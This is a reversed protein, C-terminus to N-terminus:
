DIEAKYIEVSFDKEPLDEYVFYVAGMEDALFTVNKRQLEKPMNLLSEEAGGNRVITHFINYFSDVSYFSDEGDALMRFGHCRVRYREEEGTEINHVYIVYQGDKEGQGSQILLHGTTVFGYGKNEWPIEIVSRDSKVVQFSLGTEREVLYTFFNKGGSIGNSTYEADQNWEVAEVTKLMGNEVTFCEFSSQGGEAEKECIGAVQNGFHVLWSSGWGAELTSTEKKLVTFKETGNKLYRLEWKEGKCDNVDACSLCIGGDDDLVASFLYEQKMDITREIEHTNMNWVLIEDTLAFAYSENWHWVYCLIRFNRIDCVTVFQDDRLEVEFPVKELRVSRNGEESKRLEYTIISIPLNGNEDASIQEDRAMQQITDPDTIKNVIELGNVRAEFMEEPTVQDLMNRKVSSHYEESALAEISGEAACVTISGCAIVAALVFSIAKKLYHKIM